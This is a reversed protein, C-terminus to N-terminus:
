CTLRGGDSPVALGYLSVLPHRRKPSIINYEGEVFLLLGPKNELKGPAHLGLHLQFSRVRGVLAGLLRWLLPGSIWVFKWWRLM